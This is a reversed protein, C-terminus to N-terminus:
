REGLEEGTRPSFFGVVVDDDGRRSRGHELSQAIASAIQIRFYDARHEEPLALGMTVIKEVTHHAWERYTWHGEPLEQAAM